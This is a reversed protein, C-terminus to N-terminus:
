LDVDFLADYEEHLRGTFERARAFEIPEGVACAAVIELPHFVVASQDNLVRRAHLDEGRKYLDRVFQGIQSATEPSATWTGRDLLEVGIGRYLALVCTSCYLGYEKGAFIYCGTGADFAGGDYVFALRIPSAGNASSRAVARCLSILLRQQLDDLPLRIWAYRDLWGSEEGEVRRDRM